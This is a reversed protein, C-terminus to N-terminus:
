REGFPRPPLSQLYSFLAQQEVDNMANLAETPMFDALKRGDKRTGTAMVQKFDALTWGKLGSADPTLNLPIPFDPPTGPIKGGSLNKGHCGVCIRAIWKGYAPTPSPPPGIEIHDHDIRRAVDIPVNDLRDMVKGFWGIDVVGSPRAVPRVTRVYSIVAVLDADTMWNVEQMSMFRVTRQDKKIGHRILRALEGDSYAPLLQTINPAQMTGIPGGDTVRGGGLDPGHCDKLACGALSAVLHKGRAIVAPDSSRVIKDLPAIPYVKDLSANYASTKTLVYLGGVALVLLMLALLGLGIRKLWRRM